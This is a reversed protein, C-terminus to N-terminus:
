VEPFHLFTVMENVVPLWQSCYLTGTSSELQQYNGRPFKVNKFCINVQSFFYALKLFMLNRSMVEENDKNNETNM